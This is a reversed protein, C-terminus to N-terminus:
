ESGTSSLGGPSDPLADGADEGISGEVRRIDDSELGRYRAAEDSSEEILARQRHWLEREDPAGLPPESGDDDSGTHGINEFGSHRHDRSLIEQDAPHPVEVGYDYPLDDPTGPVGDDAISDEIVDDPAISGDEHRVEHGSNVPVFVGGQRVYEEDGFPGEDNIRVM